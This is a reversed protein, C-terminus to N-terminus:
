FEGSQTLLAFCGYFFGNAVGFIIISILSGLNFILVVALSICATLFWVGFSVGKSGGFYGGLLAALLPAVIYGVQAILTALVIGTFFSNVLGFWVLGPDLAIPGFLASILISVNALSVFFTGITGSLASVLVAFGFNVGVFLAICIGFAKGFGM